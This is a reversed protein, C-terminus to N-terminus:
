STQAENQVITASVLRRVSRLKDALQSNELQTAIEILGDMQKEIEIYTAEGSFTLGESKIRELTVKSIEKPVFRARHPQEAQVPESLESLSPKPVPKTNNPVVSNKAPGYLRARVQGVLPSTFDVGDDKAMKEIQNSSALPHAKFLLTLIQTVNPSGNEKIPFDEIKKLGYKKRISGKLRTFQEISPKVSIIGAKGWEVLLQDFTIKPNHIVMSRIFTVTEPHQTPM